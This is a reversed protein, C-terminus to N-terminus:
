RDLPSTYDLWNWGNFENVSAIRSQSGRVQMDPKLIALIDIQETILTLLASEIIGKALAVTESIEGM